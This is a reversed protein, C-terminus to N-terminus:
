GPVDTGCGQLTVREAVPPYIDTPSGISLLRLSRAIDAPAAAFEREISAKGEHFHRWGEYHVPIVVRPRLVACLKVADRATMTYRFPGTVPFQVAGLHIVAIDVEIREAVSQV